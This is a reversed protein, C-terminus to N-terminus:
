QGDGVTNPAVNAANMESFIRNAEQLKRAKCFGDTLTKFTVVTPHLGKKAMLNKFKLSSSLLGKDRYGAILTNYSVVSPSCGMCEMEELVEVANELKGLKRSAAMVMDLTYVNPSIRCRRMERYFALAVDARRLDLDKNSLCLIFFIAPLSSQSESESRCNCGDHM